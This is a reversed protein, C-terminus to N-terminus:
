IVSLCDAVWWGYCIRNILKADIHLAPFLGMFLMVFFGAGSNIGLIGPDALPNDTVAQLTCGSLALGMGCLAALLIRPLRINLLILSSSGQTSCFVEEWLASFHIKSYGCNLALVVSAILGLCLIFQILWLRRKKMIQGGREPLDAVPFGARRHGFGTRWQRILPAHIMRAAVDSLVLLVAGLLMAAPAIRRYDTGVLRRAMHPVILGVFSIGGM